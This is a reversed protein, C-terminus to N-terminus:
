SQEQLYAVADRMFEDAVREPQETEWRQLTKALVAHFDEADGDAVATLRGNFDTLHQQVLTTTVYHPDDSSGKWALHTRIAPLL